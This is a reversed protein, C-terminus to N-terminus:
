AGVHQWEFIPCFEEDWYTRSTGMMGQAMGTWLKRKKDWSMVCNYMRKEDRLRIITGDKPATSIPEWGLGANLGSPAGAAKNENKTYQEKSM